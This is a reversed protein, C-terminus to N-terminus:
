SMWSHVVYHVEENIFFLYQKKTTTVAKQYGRHSSYPKQHIEDMVLKKLRTNNPIYLEGQFLLIGDDELQNGEYKKDPEVKRLGISM